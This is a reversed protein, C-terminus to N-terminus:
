LRENLLCKNCKEADISIAVKENTRSTPIAM